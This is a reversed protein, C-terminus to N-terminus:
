FSINLYNNNNNTIEPQVTEEQNLSKKNKEKKNNLNISVIKALIIDSDSLNIYKNHKIDETFDTPNDNRFYEELKLPKVEKNQKNEDNLDNEMPVAIKNGISLETVKIWGNPTLYPHNGTTNITRGSKTKLEFAPKIGMDLLANVKNSVIKGTKEDLSRV